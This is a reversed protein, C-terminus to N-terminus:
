ILLKLRNRKVTFKTKKVFSINLGCRERAFGKAHTRVWMSKRIQLGFAM